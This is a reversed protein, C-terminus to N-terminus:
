KKFHLMIIHCLKKCSLIGIEQPGEWQLTWATSDKESVHQQLSASSGGSGSLTSRIGDEEDKRM